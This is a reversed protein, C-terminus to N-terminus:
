DGIGYEDNAATDPQEAGPAGKAGTPYPWPNSECLQGTAASRLGFTQQMMVPALGGPLCQHAHIHGMAHGDEHNIMYIRYAALDGVYAVSGRVWRAVNFVVRNADSAGGAPAYCSTEVHIDYGCLNRVTMSSTLTVRFDVAGSDVREVSVGHGSWSRKDSLTRVVLNEYQTLDVGSIGNEVEVTYRYLHGNGVVPSTGKLVHFTGDGVDTYAAGAPLATAKLVTDNINGGPADNKLTMSSSAVPPPAAHHNTPKTSGTVQKRVDTTSLLAAVTVVLLVPLAYARWGYRNTFDHWTEAMSRRSERAGFTVGANRVGQRARAVDDTRRDRTVVAARHRPDNTAPVGGPEWM